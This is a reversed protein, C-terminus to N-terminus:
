GATQKPLVLEASPKDAAVAEAIIAEQCIAEPTKIPLVAQEAPEAISTVDTGSQM